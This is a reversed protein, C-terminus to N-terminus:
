KGIRVTTEQKLRSVMQLPSIKPVSTVRIPLHDKDVDREQIEVDSKKVIEFVGQKM